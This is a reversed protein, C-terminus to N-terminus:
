AVETYVGRGEPETYVCASTALNTGGCASRFFMLYLNLGKRPYNLPLVDRQWRSSRPNSDGEGSWKPRKRSRLTFAEGEPETYVKKHQPIPSM